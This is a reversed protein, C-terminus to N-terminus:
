SRIILNFQSVQIWSGSRPHYVSITKGQALSRYASASLSLFSGQKRRNSFRYFPETSSIKSNSLTPVSKTTALGMLSVEQTCSDPQTCSSDGEELLDTVIDEQAPLMSVEPTCSFAGAESHGSQEKLRSAVQTCWDARTCLSDGNDLVAFRYGVLDKAVSTSLKGKGKAFVVERAEQLERQIVKDQDDIKAAKVLDHYALAQYAAYTFRLEKAAKARPFLAQVNSSDFKLVLSCLAVASFIM